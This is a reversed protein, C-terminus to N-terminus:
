TSRAQDIVVYNSATLLGARCSLAQSVGGWPRLRGIRLLDPLKSLKGAFPPISVSGEPQQMGHIWYPALKQSFGKAVAELFSMVDKHKAGAICDDKTMLVKFM